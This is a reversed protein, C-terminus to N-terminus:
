EKSAAKIRAIAPIFEEYVSHPQHFKSVDTIEGWHEAGEEPSASWAEMVRYIFLRIARDNPVRGAWTHALLLLGSVELFSLVILISAGSM